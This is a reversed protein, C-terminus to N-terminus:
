FLMNVTARVRPARREDVQNLFKTRVREAERELDPTTRPLTETLFNKKGTLPDIGAYVRVKLSGSPLTLIEGRQKTKKRAKAASMSGPYGQSAGHTARRSRILVRM